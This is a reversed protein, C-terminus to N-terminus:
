YRLTAFPIQPYRVRWLFADNKNFVVCISFLSLFVWMNSHLPASPASFYGRLPLPLIWLISIASERLVIIPSAWLQTQWLVSIWQCPKARSRTECHGIWIESNVPLSNLITINNLMVYKSLTPGLSYLWRSYTFVYLYLYSQDVGAVASFTFVGFYFRRKILHLRTSPHRWIMWSLGCNKKPTPHWHRSLNPHSNPVVRSGFHAMRSQFLKFSGKNTTAPTFLFPRASVGTRRTFM